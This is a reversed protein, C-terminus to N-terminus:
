YPKCVINVYMENTVNPMDARVMWFFGGNRYGQAFEEQTPRKTITM